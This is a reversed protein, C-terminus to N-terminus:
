ALPRRSAPLVVRFGYNGDVHVVWHRGRCAAALAGEGDYWSGGRVVRYRADGGVAVPDVSAHKTYGVPDWVDLCWEWINGAQDLAGFPGRGAPYSGIPAPRGESNKDYCARVGDPPERGWPFPRGDDGRAAYEWQAESPLCIQQGSAESLWACFAMADQWSVSAVPQQPDSFQPDRWYRPEKHGTARLFVEYSANTVPTEAIWFASVSVRHPPAEKCEPRGMIFSGPPVYLFRIGMTEEVYADGVETGGRPQLMFRPRLAEEIVAPKERGDARLDFLQASGAKLGLCLEERIAEVLEACTTTRTEVEYSVAAKVVARLRAGCELEDLIKPETVAVLLPPAEGRLAFLVSMGAAYVDARVDVRKADKQQEPAAYGFTGMGVTRTGQTSDKAHALDFDTMYGRGHEDVLINGPKVDRHIVNQEHAYVLGEIADAVVALAAQRDLRGELVAQHLDGGALLPMVCYVHESDRSPAEVVSVVRPHRLERLRKAGSVFRDVRSEDRTWQGHLVKVAVLQEQTRDFAKWVTAFGGIGLVSDLLYRGALVDKAHLPPGARVRRQVERIQDKIEGTDGGELARVELEQALKALDDAAGPKLPPYTGGRETSTEASEDGQVPPSGGDSGPEVVSCVFRVLVAASARAAFMKAGDAKHEDAHDMVGKVVVFPLKKRSAVYGLAAAEMEVGLVKRMGAGEIRGWIGPDAMVSSGSGIPGVQVHYPVKSVTGGHIALRRRVRRVGEPTLSFGDEHDYETLHQEELTKLVEARREGLYRPLAVSKLPRRKAYLQELFWRRGMEVDAEGYDPYSTAPGELRQAFPVWDERLESVRLDGYFESGKWKGEDHGFVRDAIIVDGIATDEPHGACVGCMALVRPAFRDVLDSAWAVTAQPGMKPQWTAVVRLPGKRGTFTAAFYILEEAEHEDWEVEGGTVELLAEIEERLAALIFVEIAAQGRRHDQLAHERSRGRLRGASRHNQLTGVSDSYKPSLVREREVESKGIPALFEKSLDVSAIPTPSGGQNLIADDQFLHNHVTNGDELSDHMHKNGDTIDGGESTSRRDNTQVGATLRRPEGSVGPLALMHENGTINRGATLRKPEGGAAPLALMNKNGTIYGDASTSRRDGVLLGLREFSKWADLWTFCVAAILLIVIIQVDVGLEVIVFGLSDVGPSGLDLSRASRPTAAMSGAASFCTLASRRLWHAPNRILVVVFTAAGVAIVALAWGPPIMLAVVFVAMAGGATLAAMRWPREASTAADPPSTVQTFHAESRSCVCARVAHRPQGGAQVVRGRTLKRCRSYNMQSSPRPSSRGLLLFTLVNRSHRALGRDRIQRGAFHHGIEVGM